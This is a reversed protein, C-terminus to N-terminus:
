QQIPRVEVPQDRAPRGLLWRSDQLCLFRTLASGATAAQSLTSTTASRLCGVRVRCAHVGLGQYRLGVPDDFNPGM